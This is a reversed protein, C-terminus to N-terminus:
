MVPQDGFAELGTWGPFKPLGCDLFSRPGNVGILVFSGQDVGMDLSDNQAAVADRNM